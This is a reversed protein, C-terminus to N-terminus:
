STHLMSFTYSVKTVSNEGDHYGFSTDPPVPPKSVSSDRLSSESKELDLLDKLFPMVNKFATM